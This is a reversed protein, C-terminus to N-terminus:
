IGEEKRNTQALSERIDGAHITLEDVFVPGILVFSYGRRERQKLFICPRREKVIHWNCFKWKRM